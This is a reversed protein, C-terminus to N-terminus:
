QYVINTNPLWAKLNEIAYKNRCIANSFVEDGDDYHMYLNKLNKCFQINESIRSVRNGIISLTELNKLNGIWDPIEMLINTNGYPGGLWLHKLNLMQSVVNPIVELHCNLALEEIYDPHIREFSEMSIKGEVKLSKIKKFKEIEKPIETIKCYELQFSVMENPDQEFQKYFNNIRDGLDVKTHPFQNSLIKSNEITALHTKELNLVNLTDTAAYDEPITIKVESFSEVKLIKLYPLESINFLTIEREKGGLSIRIEEVNKVHELCNMSEYEFNNWELYKLKKLENLQKCFNDLEEVSGEPSYWIQLKELNAMGSLDPFGGPNFNSASIKLYNVNSLRDLNMGPLYHLNVTKLQSLIPHTNIFNIYDDYNEKYYCSIDLSILDSCDQLNEPIVLVKSDYDRDDISIESIQTSELLM